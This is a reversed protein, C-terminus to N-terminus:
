FTEKTKTFQFGLRAAREEALKPEATYAEFEAETLSWAMFGGTFFGPIGSLSRSLHVEQPLSYDRM